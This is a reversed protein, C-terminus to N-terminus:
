LSFMIYARLFTPHTYLAQHLKQLAQGPEALTDSPKTTPEQYSTGQYSCPAYSRSIDGIDASYTQTGEHQSCLLVCAASLITRYSTVHYPMAYCPMFNCPMVHCSMIHCSVLRYVVHCWVGHCTAIHCPAILHLIVHQLAMACCPMTHDPM